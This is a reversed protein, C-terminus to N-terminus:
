RTRVVYTGFMVDHWGQRDPNWLIRIFGLGLPALSVAYGITCRALLRSLTLPQRDASIVEIGVIWKGITQRTVTGLGMHNFFFVLTFGLAAAMMLATLSMYRALLSAVWVLFVSGLLCLMYDILAAELRIGFGAYEIRPEPQPAVVASRWPALKIQDNTM